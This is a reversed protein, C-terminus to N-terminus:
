GVFAITVVPICCLPLPIYYNIFIFPLWLLYLLNTPPLLIIKIIQFITMELHLFSIIGMLIRLIIAIYFSTPIPMPLLRLITLWSISDISRLNGFWLFLQLILPMPINLFILKSSSFAEIYLGLFRAYVSFLLFTCLINWIDTFLNQITVAAM